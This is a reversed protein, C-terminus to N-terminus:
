AAQTLNGFTTNYGQEKILDFIADQQCIGKKLSYSSMKKGLNDVIIHTQYNKFARNTSEELTALLPFHSIVLAIANPYNEIRKVFHYATKQGNEFGTSKFLADDILTLAFENPKLENLTKICRDARLIEAVLMSQDDSIDDSVSLYTIIKSFPTLRMRSAAAVGFAQALLTNLAVTKLISTKGSKNPGTLLMKSSGLSTAMGFAVNTTVVTESKLMINWADNLELTPTNSDAFTVFCIPTKPTNNKKIWTAIAMLADLKGLSTLSANLLYKEKNFQACAVLTSGIRSYFHLQNEPTQEFDASLLTKIIPHNSTDDHNLAFLNTIAHPNIPSFTKLTDSELENKIHCLARICSGVGLMEQHLVNILEGRNALHELMDKINVLHFALHLGRITHQIVESKFSRAVICTLCNHGPAHNHGPVHNHDHDDHNNGNLQKFAQSIGMDLIIHEITTGFLSAFELFHGFDLAVASENCDKLLNYKFYFKSLMKQTLESKRSDWFNNLTQENKHFYELATDLRNFLDENTLLTQLLEQRKQIEAQNILPNRLFAELERRGHATKTYDLATIAGNHSSNLSNFLELDREEYFGLVSPQEQLQESAKAHPILITSALLLTLLVHRNNMIYDETKKSTTFKELQFRKRNKSM